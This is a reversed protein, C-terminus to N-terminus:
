NRILNQISYFKELQNLLIKIITCLINIKLIKYIKKPKTVKKISKLSQYHFNQIISKIFILIKIVM